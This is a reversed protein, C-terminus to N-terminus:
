FVPVVLPFALTFFLFERSPCEGKLSELSKVLIQPISQGLM